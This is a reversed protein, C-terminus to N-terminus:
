LSYRAGPEESPRIRQALIPLSLHQEGPQHGPSRDDWGMVSASPSNGLGNTCVCNAKRQSVAPIETSQVAYRLIGGCCRSKFLLLLRAAERDIAILAPRRRRCSRQGATRCSIRRGGTEPACRLYGGRNSQDAKWECFPGADGATGSSAIGRLPGEGDREPSRFRSM